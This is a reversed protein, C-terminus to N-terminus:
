YFHYQTSHTHTHTRITTEPPADCMSGTKIYRQMMTIEYRFVIKRHSRRDQQQQEESENNLKGDMQGSKIRKM